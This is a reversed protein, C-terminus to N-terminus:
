YAIKEVMRWIALPQNAGKTAVFNLVCMKSDDNVNVTRCTHMCLAVSTTKKKFEASM